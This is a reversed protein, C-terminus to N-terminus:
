GKHEKKIGEASFHICGFYPGVQFNGGEASYYFLTDEKDKIDALYDTIKSNNACDGSVDRHDCDKCYGYLVDGSGNTSPSYKQYYREFEYRSQWVVEKNEKIVTYGEAEKSIRDCIRKAYNCYSGYTNPVARVCSQDELDIYKETKRLLEALEKLTAM